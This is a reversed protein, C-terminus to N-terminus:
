VSQRSVLAVPLKHSVPQYSPDQLKAVLERVAIIGKLPINQNITTLRPISYSIANISNDFGAVGIDQPVRIGLEAWYSIAEMALSDATFFIATKRKFPIQKAIEQYRVERKRLTHGLEIFKLRCKRELFMLTGCMKQAGVWRRHDIGYNDMGAMFITEYGLELLHQTMLRGGEEDDLGVDPVSTEAASLNGYADISVMPKRILNHIKQCNEKSCSLAIVGDVDCAALMKSIDEINDASYLLMYCNQCRLEDEINGVVVGYFPDALVSNEFGHHCHIITAVLKFGQSRVIGQRKEQVYGMEDILARIRKVTQASVKQSKGHIVNSVTATSVGAREAIQRITVM